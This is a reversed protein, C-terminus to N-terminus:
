RSQAPPPPQIPQIKDGDSLADGIGLAITEGENLGSTILATRGDNDAVAIPIYKLSNDSGVLAAFTKDGRLVIGESPILLTQSARITLKVQVYSGPLIKGDKNDLEVEALLMRTRTDIEGTYRAIVSHIELSPREPLTITVSDGPHVFQADKQDLYIYIRLKSNESISVLPLASTQSNAASQVLAGPDAYRSTVTGSIPAKLYQYDKQVKLAAVNAEAADADADAKEADQQAVLGQKQLDDTRKAVSRKNKADAEAAEYSRELEPSEIVALLQGEKVKDGKDVSIKKLYGSVKAYLTVAAYPRAEGTVNLTRISPSTTVKAIRVKIGEKSHSVLDARSHEVSEQRRAFLLYVGGAVLLVVVAGWFIVKGKRTKKGHDHHQEM